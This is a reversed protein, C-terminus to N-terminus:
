LKGVKYVLKHGYYNLKTGSAINYTNIVAWVVDTSSITETTLAIISGSSWSGGYIKNFVTAASFEYETSSYIDRKFIELEFYSDAEYSSDNYVSLYFGRINITEGDPVHPLQIPIILAERKTTGDFDSNTFEVQWYSNLNFNIDIEGEKDDDALLLPSFGAITYLADNTCVIEDFTGADLEGDVKINIKASGNGYIDILGNNITSSGFVNLKNDDSTYFRIDLDTNKFNLDHGTNIILDNNMTLVSNMQDASDSRIFQSAHLGDLKDADLGSGAGDNVSTWITGTLGDLLNLETATVGTANDLWGNVLILNANSLGFGTGTISNTGIILNGSLTASSFNVSSTQTLNQNLAGLYTWQDSSITASGINAIQQLEINSINVSTGIISNGGFDLNGSLTLGAFTPTSAITLSQNLEGVYAWQLESITTTEGITKLQTIEEETLGHLYNLELTTILASNLINLEATSVLAGDLIALETETITNLTTVTVNVFTVDDTTAVGQDMSALRGWEDESIENAGIAIIQSWEAATIETAGMNGLSAWETASIETAGINSLQQLEANNIDVSTGLISNAGLELNSSLTLLGTINLASYIESTTINFKAVEEGVNDFIKVYNYSSTRPYLGDVLLINEDFVKNDSMEYTGLNDIITTKGIVLKSDSETYGSVPQILMSYTEGTGVIRTDSETFSANIIIYHDGIASVLSDVVENISSLVLWRGAIFVSANAFTLNTTNASFDDIDYIRNSSERRSSDQVYRFVKQLVSDHNGDILNIAQLAAKTTHTWTTDYDAIKNSLGM